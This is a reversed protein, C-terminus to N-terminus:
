DIIKGRICFSLGQQGSTSIMVAEILPTNCNNKILWEFIFNGGSGGESDEEAIIIEATEMPCIYTPAKVYSRIKHGLTNYYDATHIYITDKLSTNRISVTVTLDITSNDERHYIHSYVPLYTRGHYLDLTDAEQIPRNIWTLPELQNTKQKNQCSFVLLAVCILVFLHKM